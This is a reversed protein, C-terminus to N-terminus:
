QRSGEAESIKVQDGAVLETTGLPRLQVQGDLDLVAEVEVESSQGDKILIVVTKGGPRTFLASAPVVPGKREAQQVVVDATYGSGTRTFDRGLAELRVKTSGTDTSDSEGSKGESKSAPLVVSRVVATRTDGDPGTVRARQGTQISPDETTCQLRVTGTELVIQGKAFSRGVKATFTGIKAPLRPAMMIEAKPVMVKAKARSRAADPDPTDAPESTATPADYGLAKYLKKVAVATASDFKGTVRGAPLRGLRVLALQFQTVETGKVGMTLDRFLPIRGELAILPRSAVEMVMAGEVVEAGRHLPLKTVMPSDGSPVPLMYRSSRRGECDLPISQTLREWRVAVTVVSPVPPRARAALEEPTSSQSAVAWTGGSAAVATMGLAPLM